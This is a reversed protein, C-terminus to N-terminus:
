LTSLFKDGPARSAPPRLSATAYTRYLRSSPSTSPSSLRIPRAAASPPMYRLVTQPGASHPRLLLFAKVELVDSESLGHHPSELLTYSLIQLTSYTAARSYSTSAVTCSYSQTTCVCECVPHLKGQRPPWLRFRDSTVGVTYVTTRPHVPQNSSM